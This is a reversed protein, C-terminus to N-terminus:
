KRDVDLPLPKGKKNKRPKTIQINGWLLSESYNELEDEFIKHIHKAYYGSAVLKYYKRAKQKRELYKEFYEPTIALRKGGIHSSGM